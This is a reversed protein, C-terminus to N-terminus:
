ATRSDDETGPMADGMWPFQQKKMLEGAAGVGSLGLGIAGSMKEWLSAEKVPTPRFRQPAPMADFKEGQLARVTAQQEFQQAFDRSAQPITNFGGRVTAIRDPRQAPQWNQVSQAHLGQRYGTDRTKGDLERQSMELRRREQLAREYDAIADSATRDRGMNAMNQQERSNAMSKSGGSFLKGLLGAGAMIAPFALPLPM